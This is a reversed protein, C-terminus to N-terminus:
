APRIGLATFTLTVLMEEFHSLAGCISHIPLLLLHGGGWTHCMCREAHMLVAHSREMMLYATYISQVTSHHASCSSQWFLAQCEAENTHLCLQKNIYLSHTTANQALHGRM